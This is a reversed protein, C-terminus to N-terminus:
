ALTRASTLIHPHRTMMDAEIEWTSGEVSKNRWLVKVSKVEKNRLKQVQWDLIVIPVEEYYDNEKVGFGELPLM